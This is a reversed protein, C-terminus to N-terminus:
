PNSWVFATEDIWYECENSNCEEILIPEGNPISMYYLNNAIFFLGSSDPLWAVPFANEHSITRVFQDNESYLDIGSINEDYLVFWTKDPSVNLNYFPKESIQKISGDQAITVVKEGDLGIFRSKTGGRFELLWLGDSIKQHNGAWDVLYLGQLDAEPAASVAILLKEPDIAYGTTFSKWLVTEQGSEVNIYRLNNEGCCGESANVLFYENLSVWGEDINWRSDLLLKPNQIELKDPQLTYFYTRSYAGESESNEFWIWKGDSSWEVYEIKQLNDTLRRVADKDMDYLYLDLYPKDIAGAFALYRGDSSWDLIFIDNGLEALDISKEDIFLQTIPRIQGDPIHFLALSMDPSIENNSCNMHIAMWHGRPSIANQWNRICSGQPLQFTSKSLSDPSLAVFTDSTTKDLFILLPESSFPTPSASVSNPSPSVITQQNEDKAQPSCASLLVLLVGIIIVFFLRNM